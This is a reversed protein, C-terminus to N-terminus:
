KKLLKSVHVPIPIGRWVGRFPMGAWGGVTVKPLNCLNESNTKKDMSLLFNRDKYKSKLSIICPFHKACLYHGLFVATTVKLIVIATKAISKTM